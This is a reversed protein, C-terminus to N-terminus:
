NRKFKYVKPSDKIDEDYAFSLGMMLKKAEEYVMSYDIMTSVRMEAALPKKNQYDVLITFTSGKVIIDRYSSYMQDSHKVGLDEITGDTFLITECENFPETVRNLTYDGDPDDCEMKITGDTQTELYKSFAYKNIAKTLLDTESDFKDFIEETQEDTIEFIWLGNDDLSKTFPHEYFNEEKIQFLDLRETIDEFESSDYILKVIEIFDSILIHDLGNKHMIALYMSIFDNMKIIM